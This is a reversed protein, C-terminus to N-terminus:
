GTDDVSGTSSGSAVSTAAGSSSRSAAETDAPAPDTVCGVMLLFWVAYSMRLPVSGGIM